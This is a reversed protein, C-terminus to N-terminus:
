EVKTIEDGSTQGLGQHQIRKSLEVGLASRLSRLVKSLFARVADPELSTADRRGSNFSTIAASILPEFEGAVPLTREAAAVKAYWRHDHAFRL